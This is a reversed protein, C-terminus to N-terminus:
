EVAVIGAALRPLPGQGSERVREKDAGREKGIPLLRVREAFSSEKLENGKGLACACPRGWLAASKNTTARRWRRDRGLRRLGGGRRIAASRRPLGLLSNDRCVTGFNNDCM